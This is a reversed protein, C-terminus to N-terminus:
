DNTRDAETVDKKREVAADQLLEKIDHLNDRTDEVADSIGYLYLNLLMLPFCIGSLILGLMLAENFIFAIFLGLVFGAAYIAM